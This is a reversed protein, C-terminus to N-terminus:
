GTECTRRDSRSKAGPHIRNAGSGWEVGGPGRCHEFSRTLCAPFAALACCGPTLNFGTWIGGGLRGCIWIHTELLRDNEGECSGRVIMERRVLV